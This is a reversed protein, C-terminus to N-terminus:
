GKDSLVGQRSPLLKVSEAAVEIYGNSSLFLAYHTKESVGYLTGPAEVTRLEKLWHSNKVEIITDYSGNVYGASHMENRFRHAIASEFMIIGVMKCESADFYEYEVQVDVSGATLRIDGCGEGGIPLDYQM